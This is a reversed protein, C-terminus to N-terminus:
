AALSAARPSAAPSQARPVPRLLHLEVFAWNGFQDEDNLDDAPEHHGCARELFCEDALQIPDLGVARTARM